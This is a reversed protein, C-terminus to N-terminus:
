AITENTTEKDVDDSRGYSRVVSTNRPPSRPPLAATAQPEVSAKLRRRPSATSMARWNLVPSAGPGRAQFCFTSILFTTAIFVFDAGPSALTRLAELLELRLRLRVGVGAARRLVAAACDSSPYSGLM